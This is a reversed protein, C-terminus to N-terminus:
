AAMGTAARAMALVNRPPVNPLLAEHSPSVVLCPGLVRQLRHVEAEVEAPSGHVLLDQTDVGGLFAIKGKVTASLTDADMHAARAQLPHLADIGLDVFRGLLKFVSGCSHLIVQYGFAKAQEVLERMYPLVFEDFQEPSLLLERQSGFDNGFFFGDILEGAWAYLRRNAELYFDVVRRTVAHVVEPHTYMKVFYNEMGFFAAVDHFFPCWFGSARYVEGAQELARLWEDFVLLEPDPWPFDAVQRPDECDALVGAAGLARDRPRTDFIPRGEPHRYCSYQFCIWRFDDGLLRRLSEEEQCGFARLYIPWTDEHPKGLWFGTRDAQQRAFITKVRERSTMPLSNSM